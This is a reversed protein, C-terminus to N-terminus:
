LHKKVKAPAATLHSKACKNLLTTQKNENESSTEHHTKKEETSTFM